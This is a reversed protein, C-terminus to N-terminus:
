AGLIHQAIAIMLPMAIISVLTSVAVLKVSLDTDGDFKESFMSAIAGVPASIAIVLAVALTSEIGLIELIFIAVCPYLILRLIM